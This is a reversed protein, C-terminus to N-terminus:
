VGPDASFGGDVPIVAGTVYSAADSVLWLAAGVMEEPRGYRGMPVSAMVQRGRATPEGTKEDELLFRNQNTLVFGPALANVRIEPSYERAMHTALWQTFSVLAAKGNSYGVARTLPRLGAISAINLIVGRKKGAFVRGVAQSPAVAGAYNFAVTSMLKDLEIDFFSMDPSTTAEKRSGGAGNILIDVTGFGAMTAELASRVRDPLLVDCAAALATGGRARIREARAEAAEAALDWIAVKCGQDALADAIAGCIAGAAGTVVAARGELGATLTTNM